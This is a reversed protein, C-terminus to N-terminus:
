SSTLLQEMLRQTAGQHPALAQEALRCQQPYFNIGSPESRLLRKLLAVLESASRVELIAQQQRLTQCIERFNHTYPGVITPLGFALPELPNHGGVPVLSGGVFAVQSISYALMLEGITDLLLIPPSAISRESAQAELQQQRSVFSVQAQKLLRQVSESREPHRIALVVQLTPLCAWLEPLVEQIILAEEGEHTSAFCLVPRESDLGASTIFAKQAGEPLAPSIDYKLNGVLTMKSPHVGIGTLRQYDQVSQPYWHECANLLPALFGRVKAYRPYSRDSLRTNIGVIKCSPYVQQLYSLWGPWIETETFLLKDPRLRQIFPQFCPWFDFPAYFVTVGKPELKLRALTQSTATTTSVLIEIGQQQCQDILPLISNLEGVSVAHFWWLPKSLGASFPRDPLQLGCKQLFGARFKPVWVLAALIFPWGLLIGLSWLAQYGYCAWRSGEPSALMEHFRRQWSV